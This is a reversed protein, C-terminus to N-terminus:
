MDTKIVSVPSYKEVVGTGFNIRTTNDTCTLILKKGTVWTLVAQNDASNPCINDVNVPGSFGEQEVIEVCNSKAECVLNGTKVVLAVDMDLTYFTENKHYYREEFVDGSSLVYSTNYSLNAKTSKNLWFDFTQACLYSSSVLVFFLVVKKM